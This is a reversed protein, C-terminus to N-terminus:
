RLTNVCPCIHKGILPHSTHKHTLRHSRTHPYMQTHIHAQQPHTYSYTLTNTDQSHVLPHVHTDPHPHAQVLTPTNTHSPTDTHSSAVRLTHPHTQTHVQIGPHTSAQLMLEDAHIHRLTEPNRLHCLSGRVWRHVNPGLWGHAIHINILAGQIIPQTGMSLADVDNAGQLAGAMGAEPAYKVVLSCSQSQMRRGCMSLMRGTGPGM